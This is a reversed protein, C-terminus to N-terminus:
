TLTNRFWRVGGLLGPKIRYGRKLIRLFRKNNEVTCSSWLVTVNEANGHIGPVGMDSGSYSTGPSRGKFVAGYGRLVGIGGSWRVRHGYYRSMRQTAMSAPFEWTAKPTALERHDGQFEYSEGVNLSLRM